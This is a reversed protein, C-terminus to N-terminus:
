RAPNAGEIPSGSPSSLRRLIALMVFALAPVFSFFRYDITVGTLFLVALSGFASAVVWRDHAVTRARALTRAVVAAFPALLLLLGV